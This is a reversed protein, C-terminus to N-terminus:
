RVSSGGVIPVTSGSSGAAVAPRRGPSRTSIRRRGARESSPLVPVSWKRNPRCSAATEGNAAPGVGLLAVDGGDLDLAGPRQARAFRGAPDADRRAEVQRLDAHEIGARRRRLGAELRKIEDGGHVPNRDAGPRLERAGDLPGAGRGQAEVVQAAAVRGNGEGVDLDLLRSRRHHDGHRHEIRGPRRRSRSRCRTPRATRTRPRAPCGRRDSRTAGPRCSRLREVALRQRVPIQQALTQGAMGLPGEM